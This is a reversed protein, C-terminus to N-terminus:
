CAAPEDEPECIAFDFAGSSDDRSADFTRGDTCHVKAIVLERGDITREIVQSLFGVDCDEMVLIEDALEAQWDSQAHGTAAVLLTLTALAAATPVHCPM